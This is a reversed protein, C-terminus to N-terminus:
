LNFCNAFKIELTLFKKAVQKVIIINNEVLNSGALM